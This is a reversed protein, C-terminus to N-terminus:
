SKTNNIKYIEDAISFDEEWDIDTSALKSTNYFYPNDGIRDNFKKLTNTKGFFAANNIEYIPKIKQTPPWACVTKTYLPNKKFDYFYGKHECVSVSSDNSNNNIANLSLEIFKQYENSDFFPCTVHTWLFWETQFNNLAYEILRDTHTSSLGLNKPREIINIKQNKYPVKYVTDDTTSVIVNDIFSCSCLQKIKLEYM